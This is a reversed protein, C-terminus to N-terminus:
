LLRAKENPFYHNILQLAAGANRLAKYFLGQKRYLSAAQIQSDIQVYYDKEEIALAVLTEYEKLAKRPSLAAMEKTANFREQLLSTVSLAVKEM